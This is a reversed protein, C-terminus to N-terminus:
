GKAFQHAYLSKNLIEESSLHYIDKWSDPGNQNVYAEIIRFGLWYFLTKPADPFLKFKNNSLLPNEDTENFYPSLKEFIEKEHTLYWKWDADSMNEVAQPKSITGEFFVWTFYCAFGEDITQALATEGKTDKLRNPEYVLHNLEHPIGNTITYNLDNNENNLELAFEKASCGGFGIGQIPTFLISIVAQPKSKVLRNFKTLNSKLVSDLNMALLASAKDNFLTKNEPYLTKNWTIMGNPNNFKTSNDSGFIMGYCNDWLAKHPLYVKDVIMVSDYKSPKQHALLQYKFLNHIVIDDVRISDSLRKLSDVLSASKNIGVQKKQVSCSFLLAVLFCSILSFKTM